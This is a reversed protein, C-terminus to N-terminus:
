EKHEAEDSFTRADRLQRWRLYQDTKESDSDEHGNLWFDFWDVLMEQHALKHLPKAINHEGTRIYQLEVPKSQYRLAAYLDWFGLLHWPDSAMFLIPARIKDSSLSPVRELWTQLGEGVPPAGVYHEEIVGHLPSDVYSYYGTFTIPDTNALMAAAFREPARTISTAVTWGTFSYGSIGVKESDVMGAKVLDDVAALYVDLGGEAGLKWAEDSVSHGEAAQLVVIGRSALARGANSTASPGVTYFRSDDYGHTQVVLPYRRGPVFDPPEILLGSNSRGHKDEWEHIRVPPLDISALQPNPDFIERSNGGASDTAVLVPPQNLGENVTLWLRKLNGPPVGSSYRWNSGDYELQHDAFVGLGPEKFRLVLEKEGAAEIEYLRDETQDDPKEVCHLNGDKLSVIALTCTRFSDQVNADSDDPLTTESLVVTKGDHMWEAMYRGTKNWRFDVVPANTLSKVTGRDLDVLRYHLEGPDDNDINRGSHEYALIVMRNGDPSVSVTVRYYRTFIRLVEGTDEDMVPEPSDNEIRWVYLGFPESAEYGRFNPYLLPILPKGTGIVIDPIDSGASLWTRNEDVNKSALYAIASESQSYAVIDQDEPTLAKLAHTHADVRFLQRNERGDRGLFLLHRGDKSWAPQFIVNGTDLFDAALGNASASMRVLATPDPVAREPDAISDLIEPVDFKWIVAETHGESLDGRHTVKIVHRGDPSVVGDDGVLDPMSSRILGFYSMEISDRVEFLRKGNSANDPPLDGAFTSSFFLIYLAVYKQSRHASTFTIM